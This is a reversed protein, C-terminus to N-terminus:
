RPPIVRNLLREILPRTVPGILDGAITGDPAIFFSVPASEVGYARAATEGPDLVIPFGAGAQRAARRADEPKDRFLIGFFAVEPHRKASEALLPLQDLCQKCWSGWFSVVVPRGRLDALSVTGGDLTPRTFVPAPGSHLPNVADHGGVARRVVLSAPVALVVLV